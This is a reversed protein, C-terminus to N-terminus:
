RRPMWRIRKNAQGYLGLFDPDISSSLVCYFFYLAVFINLDLFLIEISPDNWITLSRERLLMLSLDRESITGRPFQHLQGSDFRRGGAQM